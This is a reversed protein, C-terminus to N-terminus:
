PWRALPRYGRKQDCQVGHDEALEGAMNKEAIVVALEDVLILGNSLAEGGGRDTPCQGGTRDAPVRGGPEGVHGVNGQPSQTGTAVQEDAEGKVDAAGQKKKGRKM